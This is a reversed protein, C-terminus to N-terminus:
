QPNHMVKQRQSWGTSNPVTQNRSLVAPDLLTSKTTVFIFIIIVTLRSQTPTSLEYSVFSFPAKLITWPGSQM